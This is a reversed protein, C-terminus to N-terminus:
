QSTIKLRTESSEYYSRMSGLPHNNIIDEIENMKEDDILPLADLAKLNETIQGPRSAGLICSTINPTKLIWALSLQALTIGLGAAYDSLKKVTAKQADSMNSWEKSARGETEEKLFKGTLIGSMLPRYSMIGMNVQRFVPLLDREMRERGLLNHGTQEVVPPPMGYDKAIEWLKLLQEPKFESTGWYMIKGQQMLANMTIVIDELSTESWPRHCYFIDLYDAHFRKLANNCAETLKKRSLSQMTPVKNFMGYEGPSGKGVLIYNERPWGLKKISRGMEADAEGLGYTEAGDFTNIGQDYAESLIKEVDNGGTTQAFTRWAGISFVSTPMGSYGLPRYIM